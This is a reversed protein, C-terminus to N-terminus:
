IIRRSARNLARHLMLYAFYGLAATACISLVTIERNRKVIGVGARGAAGLDDAVHSARSRIERSMKQTTDGASAMLDATNSALDGAIDLGRLAADHVSRGYNAHTM